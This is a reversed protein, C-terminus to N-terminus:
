CASRTAGISRWCCPVRRFVTEPTFRRPLAYVLSGGAAMGLMVLSVVLFAFHYWLIVSFIRTLVLQSGLLVFSLLGIGFYASRPPRLGSDLLPM